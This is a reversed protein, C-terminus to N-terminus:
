SFEDVPLEELKSFDLVDTAKDISQILFEIYSLGLEDKVRKTSPYEIGRWEKNDCITCIDIIEMLRVASWCPLIDSDNKILEGISEDENRVMIYENDNILDPLRLLDASDVPVGMELLRKSQEPTTFNSQLDKKM